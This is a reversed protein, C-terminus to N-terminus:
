AILNACCRGCDLGLRLGQRWAARGDAAPLANGHAPARRCCALCRTKWATFQLAGAILVIAGVLAPVARSLMPQRMEIATLAVGVPYVAIGFVAWVFFYAAGAVASLRTLRTESAAGPAFPYRPLMPMLSPLMMAVMMVIWMALFSASAATWTQGPMRMWA